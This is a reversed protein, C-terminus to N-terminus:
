DEQERLFRELEAALEDGSPLQRPDITADGFVPTGGTPLQGGAALDAEIRDYLEELQRVMAQHEHNGAILGDLRQRQVIAEQRLSAADIVVGSVQTLGTLLAVSAAPYSMAAVYHPVQAWVTIAPVGKATLAHELVSVMGAPVDVSSRAFPVRAILEESPTTCSLRSPRTHPTAFPYAGLGVALRCGLEVVLGAAAEAFRHWQSDPESGTLLLVDHGAVDRGAKLEISPWVLRANRGERVEMTPRRARFDIFADPDFTAVTRAKTESEIAGMAAAAAGSADIWGVLMMVLVPSDLEPPPGHLEYAANM